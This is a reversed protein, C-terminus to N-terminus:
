ICTRVALSLRRKQGGSLARVKRNDAPLDLFDLLWRRQQTSITAHIAYAKRQQFYESDMRHLRGHFVLMEEVSLDQYLAIEQSANRSDRMKYYRLHMVWLAALFSM